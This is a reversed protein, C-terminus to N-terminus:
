SSGSGLLDQLVIVPIRKGPGWTIFWNGDRNQLTLNKGDVSKQYNDEVDRDWCVLYEYTEFSHGHRFANGLRYELEVFVPKGDRTVCILDTPSDTSYTGIRLDYPMRDRYEPVALLASFLVAVQAENTPRKMVGLAECGLDPLGSFEVRRGDLKRAREERHAREEEQDRMAFYTAQAVPRIQTAVVRERAEELVWQVAQDDENSLSNRDATLSFTQSNVLIHYHLYADDSAVLDNRKAFPIFDKCLYVGFRSKLTEGQRLRCVAKRKAQGSITGYIQVSVPRGDITTHRHYPGFHQCYLDSAKWEETARPNVDPEAFWHTGPIEREQIQGNPGIECLWVRPSVALNMVDENLVPYDSFKTKFSGAATFWRVYDELSDMGFFREPRDVHYNYIRVQTGQEGRVPTEALISVTPMQDRQLAAWPADMIARFRQEDATQTIVEIGDSRFYTKTGLGKEGIRQRKKQSNGLDFFRQVGARDMGEGDDVIEIVFPYGCQPGVTLRIQRAGADHSNSIAERIVELPKVLNRAVEAYISPSDVVPIYVVAGAEM